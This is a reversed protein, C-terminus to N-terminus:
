RCTRSLRTRTIVPLTAAIGAPRGAACIAPRGTTNPGPPEPTTGRAARHTSSNPVHCLLRQLVNDLRAPRAGEFRHMVVDGPHAFEKAGLDRLSAGIEGAPVVHQPGELLREVVHPDEDDPLVGVGPRPVRDAEAERDGRIDPRDRAAQPVDELLVGFVEAVRPRGVAVQGGPGVVADKEEVANEGDTGALRARVAPLAPLLDGVLGDPGQGLPVGGAMRQDRDQPSVVCATEGREQAAHRPNLGLM